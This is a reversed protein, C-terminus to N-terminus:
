LCLHSSQIFLLGYIHPTNFILVFYTDYFVAYNEFTKAGVYVQGKFKIKQLSELTSVLEQLFYLVFVFLKFFFYSTM